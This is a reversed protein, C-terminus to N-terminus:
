EFMVVRRKQKPANLMKWKGQVSADKTPHHVLLYIGQTHKIKNTEQPKQNEKNLNTISCFCLKRNTM